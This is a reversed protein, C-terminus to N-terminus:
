RKLPISHFFGGKKSELLIHTWLFGSVIFLWFGPGGGGAPGMVLGKAEGSFFAVGGGLPRFSWRLGNSFPLLGLGLGLGQTPSSRSMASRIGRCVMSDDLVLALMDACM